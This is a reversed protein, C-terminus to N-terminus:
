HKPQYEGTTNKKDVTFPLHTCYYLYLTMLLNGFFLMCWGKKNICQPFSKVAEVKNNQFMQLECLTIKFNHSQSPYFKLLTKPLTEKAQSNTLIHPSM